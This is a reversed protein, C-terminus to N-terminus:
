EKPTGGSLPTVVGVNLVDTHADALHLHAAKVRKLARPFSGNAALRREVEQLYDRLGAALDDHSLTSLDPM